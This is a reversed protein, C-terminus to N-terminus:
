DLIETAMAYKTLEDEVLVYIDSPATAMAPQMLLPNIGMEDLYGMVQSQGRQIDEVAVFAPLVTSEGFYHQHVGVQARKSVRRTEGGALVYPCASLCIHGAPLETALGMNRIIRGIALADSVSGGPSMLVLTDLGSSTLVETAFVEADGPAIEGTLTLTAGDRTLEIRRPMPGTQVDTFPQAPFDRPRFRRTQDGPAVPQDYSPADSGNILKPLARALDGGFMVLAIAVQLGLIWKITRAAGTSPATTM